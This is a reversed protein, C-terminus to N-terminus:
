VASPIRVKRRRMLERQAAVTLFRSRNNERLDIEEVIEEPLSITVRRM